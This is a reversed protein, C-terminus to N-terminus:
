LIESLGCNFVLGQARGHHNGFRSWQGASCFRRPARPLHPSETCGQAESNPARPTFVALNRCTTDTALRTRSEPDGHLTDQWAGRDVPNELRSCLLPNDNGERLFRGSGPIWGLDGANCASEKGDSSCPFGQPSFFQHKQVTAPLGPMSCDM